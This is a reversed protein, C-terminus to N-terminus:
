SNKNKLYELDQNWKTEWKKEEDLLNDFKHIFERVKTEFLLSFSNFAQDRHKILAKHGQLKFSEVQPSEPAQEEPLTLQSLDLSKWLKKYGREGAKETGKGTKKKKMLKKINSRKPEVQEDGPLLIFDQNIFLKDYISLVAQTNNLLKKSFESCHQRVSDLFQSKASEILAQTRSIREQENQNLEELEERCSPNSLNPRLKKQHQTKLDSDHECEIMLKSDIAEIEQDFVFESGLELSNISAEALAETLEVVEECTERLEKIRKLRFDEAGNKLGSLYKEMFEPMGKGQYIKSCEDRALKEIEQVRQWFTGQAKQVGLEELPEVLEEYREAEQSAEEPSPNLDESTESMTILKFPQTEEKFGSLHSGYKHGCVLVSLLKKRIDVALLPYRSAFHPEARAALTNRYEQILEKLDKLIQNMGEQAKECKTMEARMREQASRRPAGYKKGLGEKASLAEVANEQQTQFETAQTKRTQQLKDALTQVQEKINTQSESIRENIQNIKEQYYEIEQTSYSGGNEITVLSDIFKQNQTQLYSVESSSLEELRGLVAKSETQMENEYHKAQRLMGQLEALSTAETLKSKLNELNEPFSTNLEEAKSCLAEAESNNSELKSNVESQHREYINHHNRIEGNRQTYESVELQGRRPWVLRLKEELENMSADILQKDTEKLKTLVTEKEQLLSDILTKLFKDVLEQVQEQSILCDKLVCLNGEPDFPVPDEQLEESPPEEVEPKPEEKPPRKGKKAQEQKLAEEALRQEEQKRKQEQIELQKIDEETLMINKIIEELGKEYFWETGNYKWEELVPYEIQPEEEKRPKKKPEEKQKEEELQKLKEQKFSELFQDKTKLPRLNFNLGVEELTKGYSTEVVSDHNKVLDIFENTYTKFEEQLSDLVGYCESLKSDLEEGTVSRLLEQVKDKFQQELSEETEDMKDGREALTLEHKKEGETYNKRHNDLNEGIKKWFNAINTLVENARTDSDELFKIAKSLLEKGEAKRSEVEGKCDQAILEEISECDGQFFELKDKTVELLVDAETELNKQLTVIEQIKQDYAEQAEDNLNSIEELTSEIREKTLESIESSGLNGLVELRRDFYKKQVAKLAEFHKVREPPNFFEQSQIRSNFHELTSKHQINRWSKEKLLISQRNKERIEEEGMRIDELLCRIKLQNNQIVQDVRKLYEELLAEIEPGLMFAIEVLQEKITELYKELSAKRQAEVECLSKELLSIEQKRTALHNKLNDWASMVLEFDVELLKDESLEELNAKLAENSGQAFEEWKVKLDLARADCNEHLSELWGELEKLVLNHRQRRQHKQTKIMTKIKSDM